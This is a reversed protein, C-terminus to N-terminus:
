CLERSRDEEEYADFREGGWSREGGWGKELSELRFEDLRLEEPFVALKFELKLELRFELWLLLPDLPRPGTSRRGGGLMM